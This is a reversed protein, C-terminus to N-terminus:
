LCPESVLLFNKSPLRENLFFIKALKYVHFRLISYNQSSINLFLTKFGILLFCFKVFTNFFRFFSYKLMAWFLGGCVLICINSWEHTKTNLFHHAKIFSWYSYQVQLDCSSIFPKFNDLAQVQFPDQLRLMAPMFYIMFYQCKELKFPHWIKRSCITSTFM